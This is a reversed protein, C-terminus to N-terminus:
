YFELIRGDAGPEPLRAAALLEAAADAPTLRRAEVRAIVAEIGDRPLAALVQARIGDELAAALEARCRRARRRAREGTEAQWAHFDDLADLLAAIGEGTAAATRRVPPTWPAPPALALMAALEADLRDAGPLDAKNIAIADAIELIGAKIAQIGDGMGPTLVLLTADAAAAVDVESQGVGVTEVLVTAFGAADLIKVLDGTRRALGGLSGRSAMSRIFVGPDLALDNMRLRDGLLAGGTFPSSPDVAVIGVSEGRARLVKALGDVLTSKGAGPPGTVGIVRASGTHPVLARLVEAAEGNEALTLARALARRSGALVKGALDASM